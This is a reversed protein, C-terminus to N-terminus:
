SGGVESCRIWEVGWRKRRWGSAEEAWIAAARGGVWAVEAEWAVAAREDGAEKAAAMGDGESKSEGAHTSAGAEEEEEAAM